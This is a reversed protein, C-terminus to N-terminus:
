AAREQEANESAALEKLLARKVIWSIPRNEARARERVRVWLGSPLSIGRAEARDRTQKRM